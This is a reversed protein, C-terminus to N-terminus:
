YQRAQLRLKAAVERDIEDRAESVGCRADRSDIVHVVVASALPPPRKEALQAGAPVGDRCDYTRTFGNQALPLPPQDRKERCFKEHNVLIAIIKPHITSVPRVNSLEHFM